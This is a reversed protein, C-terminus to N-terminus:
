IKNRSLVCQHFDQHSWKKNQFNVLISSEPPSGGCNPDQSIDAYTQMADWGCVAMQDCLGKGGTWRCSELTTNECFGWREPFIAEDREPVILSVKNPTFLDPRIRVVYSYDANWKKCLEHAEKVRGFMQKYRPEDSPMQTKLDCFCGYEEIAERVKVLDISDEQNWDWLTKHNYGYVDYTSIFFDYTRTSDLFNKWSHVCEHFGRLFGSIQVAVRM